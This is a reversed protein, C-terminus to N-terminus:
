DASTKQHFLQALAICLIWWGISSWYSGYFAMHANAPFWAVFACLLWPVFQHHYSLQKLGLLLLYAWFCVFSIIGLVGTEAAIELLAQHPHTTGARGDQMWYDGEEVYDTFVYRFGRPGVGNVWNEKFITITTKWLPLRGATAQSAQDFNGSFLMLTKDIRQRSPEYHWALLMLCSAILVAPVALTKISLNRYYIYFYVFYASCGIGAMLWAVRKGSLLLVALMAALLLWSWKHRHSHLRLFELYFPLFVAIVHGLRIKPYFMGTLQGKQSYPYSFLNIGVFFQLLADIAWFTLITFLALNIKAMQQIQQCSIVIFVGAFFFHTYSLVTKNARAPNAADALAILQPLWLCAFCICLAVISPNEFLDKRLKILYYAGFASMIFYPVNFLTKTCFLLLTSAILLFAYNRQVFALCQQFCLKKDFALM